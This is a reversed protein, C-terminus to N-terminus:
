FGVLGLFRKMERKPEPQQFSTIAETLCKQPKIGCASLEYGLFDVKDSAIVCKSAKLPINSKRLCKFVAELDEIHQEFSTNFLATDNIYALIRNPRLGGLCIDIMRQYSAGANSLGYPTVNFEFKETGPVSFATKEKELEALPM